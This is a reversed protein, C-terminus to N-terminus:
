ANDRGERRIKAYCDACLELDGLQTTAANNCEDCAPYDQDEDARVEIHGAFEKQDTFIMATQDDITDLDAQRLEALLDDCVAARDVCDAQTYKDLDIEIILKM